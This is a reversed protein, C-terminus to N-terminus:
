PFSKPFCDRKIPLFFFFFFFPLMTLVLSVRFDEFHSECFSCNACSIIQQSHWVGPQVECVERSIEDAFLVISANRPIHRRFTETDRM